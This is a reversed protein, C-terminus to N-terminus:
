AASAAGTRAHLWAVLETPPLPRALHYGQATHCGFRLLQEWHESTEVGEAVVRLGLNRALEITSRVIAADEASALMDQVFSKDIKLESVPLRKLYALSSYGTGFDDVALAIGVESLRTVVEFARAPDVMVTNETLELQLAGAPVEFRALLACVDAPFRVDLLNAPSINVSVNLEIGARRWTRQQELAVELVHMTLRRMLGHHEALPIFADPFLLGRTPHQWRALAEVGVVAGTVLGAQPQYHLVIDGRALAGHLEGVLAFRDPSLEDGEERYAEVGTQRQKARYMAVDAHRLLAGRSRGHEPCAAVGISGTVHTAMSELAFPDELADLVDRAVAMARECDYGCPLLAVFEDGGLRAAGTGAPLAARLRDAVQCLVDDGASHGLTDNLEKFRNLDLLIMAVPAGAADAAAIDAEAQAYFGRRNLLGTLDDTRAQRHADLLGLNERFTLGARVTLAVITAVALLSSIVPLTGLATWVLLALAVLAFLFPAVLVRWGELRVGAALGIPQWAAAAVLLQAAAWMADLISPGDEAGSAIRVLYASDAVTNLLLGAAVLALGTGPRGRTLAFVGALLALLLVDALPYAFNVIITLPEGEAAQQLSPWLVGAALAAMALAGILGDLWVSRHFHAVRERVLLVLAAYMPPYFALWLVDAISPYPPEDLRSLWAGWVINGAAWCALGVALVVWAARGRAHRRAGTACVAVGSLLLGNQVWDNFLADLGDRDRGWLLHAGYLVVTLALAGGVLPAPRRRPVTTAM